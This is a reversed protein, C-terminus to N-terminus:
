QRCPGERLHTLEAGDRQTIRVLQCLIPQVVGHENFKKLFKSGFLDDCGTMSRDNAKAHLM